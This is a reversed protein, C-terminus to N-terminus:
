HAAKAACTTHPRAHGEGVLVMAAPCASAEERDLELLPGKSPREPVHGTLPNEDGYPAAFRADSATASVVFGVLLLSPAWAGLPLVM